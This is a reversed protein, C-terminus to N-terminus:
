KEKDKLQALVDKLKQPVPVGLAAANELLSIGENALYFWATLTRFTWMEGGILRDLCVALVIVLLIVAKKALGKFGIESSLQKRTIALMVGTIYDAAMFCLLAIIPLDWTGFLWCIVTGTCAVAADFWHKM